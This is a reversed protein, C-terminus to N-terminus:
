YFNLLFACQIGNHDFSQTLASESGHSQVRRDWELGSQKQISSLCVNASCQLFDEWVSSYVKYKKDMLILQLFSACQLSKM